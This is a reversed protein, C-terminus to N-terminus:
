LEVFNQLSYSYSSVQGTSLQKVPDEVNISHLYDEGELYLCVTDYSWDGQAQYIAFLEPFEARQTVENWVSGGVQGTVAVYGPNDVLSLEAELWLSAPSDATLSTTNLALFIKYNRLKFALNGQREIERKGVTLTLAM